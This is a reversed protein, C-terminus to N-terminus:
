ARGEKKDLYEVLANYFITRMPLLENRGYRRARERLASPLEVTTIKWAGSARSLKRTMDNRRIM